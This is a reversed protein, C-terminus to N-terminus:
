QDLEESVLLDSMDLKRKLIEAEVDMATKNAVQRIGGVTSASPGAAVLSNMVVAPTSPGNEIEEELIRRIKRVKEAEARRKKSAAAKKKKAALVKAAALSKSAASPYRKMAVAAPAVGKRAAGLGKRVSTSAEYEWPITLDSLKGTFAKAGHLARKEKLFYYFINNLYGLLDNGSGGFSKKSAFKFVSPPRYFGSVLSRWLLGVSKYRVYEKELYQKPTVAMEQFYQQFLNM